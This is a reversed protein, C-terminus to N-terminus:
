HDDKENILYGGICLKEKVPIPKQSKESKKNAKLRNVAKNIGNRINYYNYTRNDFTKPFFQLKEIFFGNFVM